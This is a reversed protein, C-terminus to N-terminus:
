DGIGKFIQCGGNSYIFNSNNLVSSNDPMTWVSYGSEFLHNITNLPRLYLYDDVSIVKTDETLSLVRTENVLGYSRLVFNQSVTDAYILSKDNVESLIWKAAYVEKASTYSDYLSLNKLAVNSSHTTLSPSVPIDDVVAFIFGSQFLLFCILLITSLNLLIRSNRCRMLDKGLRSCFDSILKSLTEGGLVIMVPLFFMAIQFTRTMNLESAFNPVAICFVLILMSTFAGSFLLPNSVFRKRLLLLKLFGVVVFAEIAYFVYQGLRRWFSPLSLLGVAKLIEPSRGSLFDSFSYIIRSLASTLNNFTASEFSFIYWVFALNVLLLLAFLGHRDIKHNMFSTVLLLCLVYFILFYTVAYHSVIVGFFLMFMVFYRKREGIKFGNKAYLLLVLVFFLEGIMQRALYTIEIYFTAYSVFFFIALVAKREEFFSRYICFLAVPVLAFLLPYIVKFVLEGSLNLVLSYFLPLITVSLMSGLTLIATSQHEFISATWSSNLKTLTFSYYESHLDYGTIYQSVMTTQLLLTLAISFLVLPYLKSPIIRSSVSALLFIASIELILFLLILNISYSISLIDGILSTIPLVIFVIVMLWVKRNKILIIPNNGNESDEENLYIYLCASLVLISLPFLLSSLSLPNQFGMLLGIGNVLFGSAMLLSISLGVSILFYELLTSEKLKLARMITVGPVITVYIFGVVQRVFPLNLIISAVAIIQLSVVIVVFSKKDLHVQKEFIGM